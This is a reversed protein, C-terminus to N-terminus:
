DSWISHEVNTQEEEEWMNTENGAQDDGDGASGMEIGSDEGDIIIDLMADRTGVVVCKTLPHEYMKRKM